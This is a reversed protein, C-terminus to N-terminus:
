RMRAHPVTRVRYVLVTMLTIVATVELTVQLVAASSIQCKKFVALFCQDRMLMSYRIAVLVETLVLIATAHSFIRRM